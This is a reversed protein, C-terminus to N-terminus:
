GNCGCPKRSKVSINKSPRKRLIYCYAEYATTWDGVELASQMRFYQLSFNAFNADVVCKSSNCSCGGVMCKFNKMAEEYVVKLDVVAQMTNQKDLGCPTDGSPFGTTTVWVFFMKSKGCLAGSLDFAHRVTKCDSNGASYVAIPNSSPGSECYTDETDIIISDIYVNEYYPLDIVQADVQLINPAIFKLENFQVM